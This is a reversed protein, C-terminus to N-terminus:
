GDAPRVETLMGFAPAQSARSIFFAIVVRNNSKSNYRMKQYPNCGTAFTVNKIKPQM